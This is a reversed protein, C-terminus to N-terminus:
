NTPTKITSIAGLTRDIAARLDEASLPRLLVGNVFITPTSDIGYMEGDAIDRRVEAAFTGGDLAADFRARDLGLESAYKKLSPVDLADQRKFLLAAYEFFKGQAHAANAAEAAKRANAHMALPFDRVVFRVNNGYSKLVEELVPHMSACSPCQFDTFEVIIVPATALGRSPDDDTSIAQTPPQPESILLRIQAGKRLREAMTRELQQRGQEQLYEALQNRVSNLDKGIRSKNEAYFKAVEAETPPQSKESIESRVIEEPPVNRRKAEEILLIDNITRELAESELEYVNLRLKYIAPKLREIVVGAAIPKGGVTALVAAPNLNPTNIDVGMIVPNTTRLRLVFEESIKAEQNARLLSAVQTRLKTEDTEELQNRNNDIFKNIEVETPNVVRKNVELNYLQQSTLKRKKAEIELLETNIQLELVRRRTDAVREELSEVEERVRPDIDVTTITQGNVIALPIPAKSERPPSPRNVPEPVPQPTVAKAPASRTTTRRRPTQGVIVGSILLALGAAFFYRSFNM